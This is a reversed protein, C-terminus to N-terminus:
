TVASTRVTDIDEFFNDIGSDTTTEKEVRAHRGACKKLSEMIGRDLPRGVIAYFTETESYGLFTVNSFKHIAQGRSDVTISAHAPTTNTIAIEVEGPLRDGGDIEARSDTIGLSYVGPQAHGCTSPALFNLKDKLDMETITPSTLLAILSSVREGVTKNTAFRGEDANTYLMVPIYIGEEQAYKSLTQLTKISNLCDGRSDEDVIGVLVVRKGECASQRAIMPGIVSGSGGSMSCVIINVDQTWITPDLNMTKHVLEDLHTARNKGSGDEALLELKIDAHLDHMNSRCTDIATVTTVRDSLADLLLETKDDTSRAIDHAMIKNVLNIGCGGAGILAITPLKSKPNTM